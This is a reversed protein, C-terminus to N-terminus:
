AWILGLASCEFHFPKSHLEWAPRTRIPFKVFVTNKKTMHSM